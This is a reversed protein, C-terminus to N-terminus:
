KMNKKPITLKLIIIPLFNDLLINGLETQNLFTQIFGRTYLTSMVTENTEKREEAREVLEAKKFADELDVCRQTIVQARAFPRYSISETYDEM